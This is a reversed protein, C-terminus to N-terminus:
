PLDKLEDHNLVNECYPIDVQDLKPYLAATDRDYWVRKNKMKVFRKDFLKRCTSASQRHSKRDSRVTDSRGAYFFNEFDSRRVYLKDLQTPRKRSMETTETNNSLAMLM